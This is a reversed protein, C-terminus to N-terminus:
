AIDHQGTLIDAPIEKQGRFRCWLVGTEGNAVSHFSTKRSCEGRDAMRVLVVRLPGLNWGEKAVSRGVGVGSYGFEACCVEGLGIGDMATAARDPGADSRVAAPESLGSLLPQHHTTPGAASQQECAQVISGIGESWCYTVIYMEM